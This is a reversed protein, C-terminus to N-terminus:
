KTPKVRGRNEDVLSLHRKAPSWVQTIAVNKCLLISGGWERLSNSTKMLERGNGPDRSGPRRISCSCTLLTFTWKKSNTRSSMRGSKTRSRCRPMSRNTTSKVELRKSVKKSWTLLWMKSVKLTGNMVFNKSTKLGHLGANDVRAWREDQCIQYFVLLIVQKYLGVLQCIHVEKYSKMDTFKFETVWVPALRRPNERTSWFRSRSAM